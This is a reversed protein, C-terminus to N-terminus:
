IRPRLLRLTDYMRKETDVCDLGSFGWTPAIQLPMQATDLVTVANGCLRVEAKRRRYLDLAM